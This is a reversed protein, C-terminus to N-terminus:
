DARSQRRRRLAIAAGLGVAIVLLLLAVPSNVPIVNPGPALVSPGCTPPAIALARVPRRDSGGELQPGTITTERLIAGTTPSLEVLIQREIGAPLDMLDFAGFLRGDAAFAISGGAINRGALSNPFKEMAGTIPDFTYVGEAGAVGLAINQEGRVALGALSTASTGIQQAVATAPDVEWVKRLRRSIMLLKGDCTFSLSSDVLVLPNFLVGGERLPGVVTARGSSLSARFLVHPSDAVGYLTGDSAFALGDVDAIQVGNYTGFLGQGTGVVVGQATTLDIRYLRDFGAMYGVTGAILDGTPDGGGVPAQAIAACPLLALLLGCMRRTGPSM